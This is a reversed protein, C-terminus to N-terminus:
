RETVLTAARGTSARRRELAAAMRVATEHWDAVIGIDCRTFIPAGADSNVAVVTGARSVGLMHNTNGSIGFALYLRPAINRATIGVQRFHPLLGTDTVKRTAALEANLLGRLPELADHRGPDVGLGVGIVVEARDLAEYEHEPVRPGSRVAHEPGVPLHHVPLLGPAPRPDLLDLCGTRLTAIQTTGQSVIEALTSDGSPKVGVLQTAGSEGTRASLHVLDSMLGADLRVALRGLVDRDWSATTGLIAWPMGHATIWSTLAAAVPRTEGRGLTVVEDAGWTALRTVDPAPEPATVAVVRAGAQSALVAAEGLLARTGPAGGLVLIRGSRPSPTRVPTRDRPRVRRDGDRLRAEWLDIAREVQDDLGGSLIVSRRDQRTRRIGLVRTPSVPAPGDSIDAVCLTRVASGDPWDEPAAKAGSSSREAVSVVAPLRLTVTRAGDEAQLGARMMTTDCTRTLEWTLVPGAFPLGLLEAVMTGVASTNGDVSSRGVMVLDFEGLVRIAAALAKATALCDSGALAPDSVHVAEDAGCALAERLVDAASPPGMTLVTSHGGPASALRVAQTVARRCWPNMESEQVGRRLRGDSDLEGTGGDKPVQKVLAVTRLGPSPGSTV